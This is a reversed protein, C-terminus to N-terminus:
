NLKMHQMYMYRTQMKYIVCSEMIKEYNFIEKITKLSLTNQIEQLPFITSLRNAIIRSKEIVKKILKLESYMILRLYFRYM